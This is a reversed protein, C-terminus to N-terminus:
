ASEQTDVTCVSRTIVMEISICFLEFQFLTLEICVIIQTVSAGDKWKNSGDHMVIIPEDGCGRYRYGCRVESM